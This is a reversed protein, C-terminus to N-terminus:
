TLALRKAAGPAREREDGVAPRRRLVEVHGEGDRFAVVDVAKVLGRDGRAVAVVAPRALPGLVVGAVVTGEDEVGVPVVDLGNVM